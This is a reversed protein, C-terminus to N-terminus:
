GPEEQCTNRNTVPKRRRILIKLGSSILRGLDWIFLFETVSLFVTNFRAVEVVVAIATLLANALTRIEESCVKEQIFNKKTHHPRITGSVFFM